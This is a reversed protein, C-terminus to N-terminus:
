LDAMSVNSPPAPIRVTVPAFEVAPIKQVYGASNMVRVPINKESNMALARRIHLCKYWIHTNSGVM